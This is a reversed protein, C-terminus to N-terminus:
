RSASASSPLFSTTPSLQLEGPNNDHPSGGERDPNPGPGVPCRTPCRLAPSVGSPLLSSTSRDEDFPPVLSCERRGGANERALVALHTFRKLPSLGGAPRSSREESGCRRGCVRGVVARAVTRMAEARHESM